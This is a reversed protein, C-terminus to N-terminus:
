DERLRVQNDVPRPFVAEPGHEETKRAAEHFLSRGKSGPIIKGPEPGLNQAPGRSLGIKKDNGTRDELFDRGYDQAKVLL